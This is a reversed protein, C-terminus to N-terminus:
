FYYTNSLVMLIIEKNLWLLNQINKFQEFSNEIPLAYIGDNKVFIPYWAEIIPVSRIPYTAM